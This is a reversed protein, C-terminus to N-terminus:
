QIAEEASDCSAVLEARTGYASYDIGLEELDDLFAAMDAEEDGKLAKLHSEWEALLFDRYPVPDTHPTKIVTYPVVCGSYGICYTKGMRMIFCLCQQELPDNDAVVAECGDALEIIDGVKLKMYYSRNLLAEHASREVVTKDYVRGHASFTMM